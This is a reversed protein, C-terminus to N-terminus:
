YIHSFRRTSCYESGYPGTHVYRELARLHSELAPSIPTEDKNAIVLVCAVGQQIYNAFAAWEAKAHKSAQFDM